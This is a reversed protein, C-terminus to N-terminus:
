SSAKGLDKLKYPRSDKRRPNLVRNSPSGGRFHEQWQLLERGGGQCWWRVHGRHGTGWANEHAHPFLGRLPSPLITQIDWMKKNEAMRISEQM